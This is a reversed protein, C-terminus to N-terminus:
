KSNGWISSLCITSATTPRRCTDLADASVSADDVHPAHWLDHYWVTRVTTSNLRPALTLRDELKHLQLVDRSCMEVRFRLPASTRICKNWDTCVLMSQSLTSLDVALCPMIFPDNLLLRLVARTVTM